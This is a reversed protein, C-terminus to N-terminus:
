QVNFICFIDSYVCINRSNAVKLRRHHTAPCWWQLLILISVDQPKTLTYFGSTGESKRVKLADRFIPNLGPAVIEILFFCSLLYQPGLKLSQDESFCGRLHMLQSLIWLNWHNGSDGPTPWSFFAAVVPMPTTARVVAVVAVVASLSALPFLLLLSRRQLPRRTAISNSGEVYRSWQSGNSVTGNPEGQNGNTIALYKDFIKSGHQNNIGNQPLTLVWSVMTAPHVHVFAPQKQTVELYQLTSEIMHM